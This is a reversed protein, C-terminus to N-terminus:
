LTKQLDILGGANVVQTYGLGKLVDEVEGARRGSRCYLVVPTNKDPVLSAINQVVQDQNINLSGPLAGTAYEDASRVDILVVEGKQMLSLAAPQDVPGADAQTVFLSLLLTSTFLYKKM